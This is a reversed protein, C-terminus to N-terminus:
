LAYPRSRPTLVEVEPFDKAYATVDLAVGYSSTVLRVTQLNPCLRGLARLDEFGQVDFVWLDEIYPLDPAHACYEAAQM